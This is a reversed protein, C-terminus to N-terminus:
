SCTNSAGSPSRPEVSEDATVLELLKERIRNLKNDGSAAMEVAPTVDLHGILVPYTTM